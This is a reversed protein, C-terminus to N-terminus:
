FYHKVSDLNIVYVMYWIHIIQHAKIGKITCNSEFSWTGDEGCMAIGNGYMDYCPDCTLLRTTGCLTLTGNLSGNPM